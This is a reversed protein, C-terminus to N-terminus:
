VEWFFSKLLLLFSLSLFFSMAAGAATAAGAAATAAGAAATAATAAAPGSGPHLLPSYLVLKTRKSDPNTLISYIFDQM